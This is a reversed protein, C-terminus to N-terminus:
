FTEKHGHSDITPPELSLLSAKDIMMDAEEGTDGYEMERSGKGRGASEGVEPRDKSSPVWHGSGM